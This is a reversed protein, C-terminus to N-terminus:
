LQCADEMTAVTFRENEQFWAGSAPVSGGDASFAGKGRLFNLMATAVAPEMQVAAAFCNGAYNRYGRVPFVKGSIRVLRVLGEFEIFALRPPRSMSIASLEIVNEFEVNRACGEFAGYEDNCTFTVLM